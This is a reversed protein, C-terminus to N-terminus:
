SIVKEVKASIEEFTNIKQATDWANDPNYDILYMLLRNQNIFEKVFESIILIIPNGDTELIDKIIRLKTLFDENKLLLFSQGSLIEVKEQKIKSSTRRKNYIDKNKIVKKLETSRKNYETFQNIFETQWISKLAM